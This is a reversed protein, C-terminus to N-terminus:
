RPRRHQDADPCTTFHSMGRKEGADLETRGAPASRVRLRGDVLRVALNGAPDPEANLPIRKGTSDSVAWRIPAECSRCAATV